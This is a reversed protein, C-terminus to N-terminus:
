KIANIVSVITYMTPLVFLASDIRDMVGGHGPILNGYDKIGYNRKIVSASLDGFMSIISLIVSVPIVAYWDWGTFPASFFKHKFVLFLIVNAVATFVVGGIAGEWTKKPSIVPAMKHKGFFVGTFYAFTDTGWACFACFLILYVAHSEVHRTDTIFQWNYLKIWCALANPVALASLLSMSVQEFKVDKNWKIMMILLTIFYVSIAAVPTIGIRDLLNYAVDFPIFVGVAISLISMPLKVKAVKTLEYVSIGSLIALFIPLAITDMFFLLAIVLATCALGAIIRTKM